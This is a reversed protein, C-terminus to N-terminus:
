SMILFVRQFFTHYSYELPSCMSEFQIIISKACWKSSSSWISCTCIGAGFCIAVTLFLGLRKKCAMLYWVFVFITEFAPSFVYIRILCGLICTKTIILLSTCIIKNPFFSPFLCSPLGLRIHLSLISIFRVTSPLAHILNFRNDQISDLVVSLWRLLIILVLHQICVTTGGSSPGLYTRFMYLNVFYVLSEQYIFM